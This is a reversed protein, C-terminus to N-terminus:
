VFPDAPKQTLLPSCEIFASFFDKALNIKNWCKKLSIGDIGILHAVHTNACRVIIEFAPATFLAHRCKEVIKSAMPPVIRTLDVAFM